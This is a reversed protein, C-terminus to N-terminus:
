RRSLREALWPIAFAIRGAAYGTAAALFYSLHLPVSALAFFWGYRHILFGYFPRNLFVAAGTAAAAATLWLPSFWVLVVCALALCVLLASARSRTDINLDNDMRGERLLLLTWPVARLLIDTRVLDSWKWQKLHRVQWTPDLVIRHGAARLRYGLEIDEISPLRYREDFGGVKRFIEADCAGCAAWFTQAERCANQHTFHHLLNRYRSVLGPASPSDDYSGFAAVAGPNGSLVVAARKAFDPSAVVDSDMFVVVSGGAAAAGANRAASVGPAHPLSVVRFGLTRAAKEVAPCAGDVAVIVERPAPALAVVARLCERLMPGDRHATIVLSLDSPHTERDRM